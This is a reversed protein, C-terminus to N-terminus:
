DTVKKPHANGLRITAGAVVRLAEAPEEQGAASLGGFEADLFVMPGLPGSATSWTGRAVGGYYQAMCGEGGIWVNCAWGVGGGAGWEGTSGTILLAAIGRVGMGRNEYSAEATTAFQFTENDLSWSPRVGAVIRGAVPGSVDQVSEGIVLGVGLYGVMHTPNAEIVVPTPEVNIINRFPTPEVTVNVVPPALTATKAELDAKAAALETRAAELAQLAATLEASPAPPAPPTTSTTAPKRPTAPRRAAAPPPVCKAEAAKVAAELRAVEAALSVVEESAQQGDISAAQASAPTTTSLALALVLSALM